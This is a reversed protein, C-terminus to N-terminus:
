GPQGRVTEADFISPDVTALPTVTSRRGGPNVGILDTIEDESYTREFWDVKITHRDNPNSGRYQYGGVVRGISWKRDHRSVGTASGTVIISGVPTSFLLRKFQGAVQTSREFQRVMSAVEVESMGTLDANVGFDIGAMGQRLFGFHRMPNHAWVLTVDTEHNSM